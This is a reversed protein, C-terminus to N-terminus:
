LLSFYWNLFTPTFFIHLWFGLVLFPGFPVLTKIGAKGFLLAGASWLGGVLFALAFAFLIDPFGLILGMAAALKVDGMGMARGKSAAAVAGLLIYGAVAGVAHVSFSNGFIPFLPAYAGLFSGSDAVAFVAGIVALLLTIQNPIIMLRLDIASLLIMSLAVLLWGQSLIEKYPHEVPFSYHPYFYLLPLLFSGATVAEVIPYHWSIKNGCSRCRGGQILFSIVPILEFWRLQRHCQPCYSRGDLRNIDFLRGEGKYRMAVVNLFSGVALGLIGFLAAGLTM